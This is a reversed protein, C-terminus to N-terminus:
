PEKKEPSTAPLAPIPIGGEPITSGVPVSPAPVPKAATPVPAATPSPAPAAPVGGMAAPGQPAPAAGGGGMAAPGQAPAEPRSEDPPPPAPETSVMKLQAMIPRFYPELEKEYCFQYVFFDRLKDALLERSATESARKLPVAAAAFDNRHAERMAALVLWDLNPVPVALQKKIDADLEEGRGLAILTLRRKFQMMEDEAQEHVRALAQDFKALALQLKGTRRLFEGHLFFYKWDFPAGRQALEFSENALKPRSTRARVLARLGHLRGPDEGQDIGLSIHYDAAALEGRQLNLLALTLQVGKLEPAEKALLNLLEEAKGFNGSSQAVSAEDIRKIEEPEALRAVTAVNANALPAPPPKEGPATPATSYVEPATFRGLLFGTGLILAVGGSIIANRRGPPLRRWLVRLPPAEARRGTPGREFYGREADFEAQELESRAESKTFDSEAEPKEPEEDTAAPKEVREEDSEKPADKSEVKSAEEPAEKAPADKVPTDKAAPEKTKEKPKPEPAPAEGKSRSRKEVFKAPPALTHEGEAEEEGAAGRRFRKEERAILGRETSAPAAPKPAATNGLVQMLVTAIQQGLSAPDVAAPPASAERDGATQPNQRPALAIRKAAEPSPTASKPSDTEAPDPM